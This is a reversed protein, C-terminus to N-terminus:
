YTMLNLTYGDDTEGTIQGNGVWTGEFSHVLGESDTLQGSVHSTQVEAYAVGEVGGISEAVGRVNYAPDFAWSTTIISCTVLIVSKRVVPVGRKTKIKAELEHSHYRKKYSPM